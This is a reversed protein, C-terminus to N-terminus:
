NGELPGIELIAVKPILSEVYSNQPSPPVCNLGYLTPQQSAGYSSHLVIEVSRNVLKVLKNDM